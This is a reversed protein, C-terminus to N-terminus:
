NKSPTIYKSKVTSESLAVTWDGIAEHYRRYDVSSIRVKEGERGHLSPANRVARADIYGRRHLLCNRLSNAELLVAATEESVLADLDFHRLVASYTAVIDGKVNLKHEIKSYLAHADEYNVLLQSSDFRVGITDLEVLAAPWNLLISVVTDEVCTELAGWIAVLSHANLVAYDSERLERAWAEHFPASDSLRKAAAAFARNRQGRAIKDVSQLLPQAQETHTLANKLLGGICTEDGVFLACDTVAEVIWGPATSPSNLNDSRASSEAV